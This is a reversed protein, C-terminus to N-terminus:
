RRSLEVVFRALAELEAPDVIGLRPMETGPKVSSPDKIWSEIKPLDGERGAKTIDARPGKGDPGHCSICGKAFYLESGRLAQASFVHAKVPPVTKLFAHLAGADEDTVPYRPMAKALVRGQPTKGERLGRALDLPAWCWIGEVPDPTINSALVRPEGPEEFPEGGSWLRGPVPVGKERPHHCDGCLMVANALYEGYEKTAGPPPAKVGTIVSHRPKVRGLAIALRGELTLEARRSPKSVAPVTGLYAILALEDEDSLGEYLPMPARLVRGDPRVGRRLAEEVQGATWSGIGRATDRTVNAAWSRVSPLALERGGSLDAGHCPECSVASLYRGRAVLEPTAKVDLQRARVKAPRESWQWVYVVFGAGGVVVLAVLVLLARLIPARTRTEPATETM